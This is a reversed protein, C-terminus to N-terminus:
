SEHSLEQNWTRQHTLRGHHIVLRAASHLPWTLSDSGPFLVLSADSGPTLPLDNQPEGTLAGADGILRSQQDFVDDLQLAFLACSLLWAPLRVNTIGNLPTATDPINM